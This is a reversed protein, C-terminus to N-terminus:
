AASTLEAMRRLDDQTVEAYQESTRGTLRDYEDLMAVLNDYSYALWPNSYRARIGSRFLRLQHDVLAGGAATSMLRPLLVLLRQREADTATDNVGMAFDNLVKLVCSPEDTWPEGALFSAYEMVCAGEAPSDHSGESLIPMFDPATSGAPDPRSSATPDATM